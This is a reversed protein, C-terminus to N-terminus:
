RENPPRRILTKAFFDLTRRIKAARDGPSGSATLLSGFFATLIIRALEDPGLEVDIAGHEMERALCCRLADHIPNEEFGADAPPREFISVAARLLEPDDLEREVEFAADALSRLLRALRPPREPGGPLRAAAQRVCRVGLEFLVHDKTPFHFYFTGAVVGARAVIDRIRAKEVGSARFEEIALDFLRNRTELRQRERSKQPSSDSRTVTERAGPGLDNCSNM